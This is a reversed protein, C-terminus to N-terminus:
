KSPQEGLELSYVRNATPRGFIDRGPRFAVESLLEDCIALDARDSGSGHSLWCDSPRGDAGVEIEAVAPKLNGGTKLAIAALKPTVMRQFDPQESRQSVPLTAELNNGIFLIPLVGSNKPSKKDTYRAKSALGCAADGLNPVGKVEVVKCDIVSGNDVKVVVGVSLIDAPLRAIDGKFLHLGQATM